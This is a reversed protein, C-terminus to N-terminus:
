RIKQNKNDLRGNQNFGLEVGAEFNMENNECAKFKLYEDIKGTKEFAQWANSKANDM